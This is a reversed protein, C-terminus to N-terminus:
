PWLTVIQHTEVMRRQLDEWARDPQIPLMVCLLKWTEGSIHSRTWTRFRAPGSLSMWLSTRFGSRRQKPQTSLTTTRRLHIKAGTKLGSREPAPKGWPDRQVKSREDKGQDQSTEWDRGSFFMGVCLAAVVMSWRLSPIPRTILPAQNEESSVSPM